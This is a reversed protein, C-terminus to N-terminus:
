IIRWQGARFVVSISANNNISRSTSGDIQQGDTGTISPGNGAGENKIIYTKGVVGTPLTVTVSNSTIGIYEDTALATYNTNAGVTQLIGESAANITVVGTAASISINTGAVISTVGTNNITFSAEPGSAILDTISIATGGTPTIGTIVTNGDLQLDTTASVTDFIVAANIELSQPISIISNIDVNINAGVELVGLETATGQPFLYSM